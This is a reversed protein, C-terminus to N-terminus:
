EVGMAALRDEWHKLVDAWRQEPKGPRLNLYCTTEIAQHLRQSPTMEALRQWGAAKDAAFLALLEAPDCPAIGPATRDALAGVLVSHAYRRRLNDEYDAIIARAIRNSM